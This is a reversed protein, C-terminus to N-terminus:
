ISKHEGTQEVPIEATLLLMDISFSHIQGIIVPVGWGEHIINAGQNFSHAGASGFTENMTHWMGPTAAYSAASAALITILALAGEGASSMYSVLRAGTEKELQKFGGDNIQHAPTVFNPDRQSIGEAIFKLYVLWIGRWCNRLYGVFGVTFM